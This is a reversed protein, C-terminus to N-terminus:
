GLTVKRYAKLKVRTELVINCIYSYGLSKQEKAAQKSYGYNTCPLSIWSMYCFRYKENLVHHM